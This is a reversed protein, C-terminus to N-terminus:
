IQTQVTQMDAVFLISPKYPNIYKINLLQVM